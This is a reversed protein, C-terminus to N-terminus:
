APSPHPPQGAAADAAARLRELARSRGLAALVDFLGPSAARGTLAVRAPQAVDKIQLGAGALWANTATEIASATWSEVKELIGALDRLRPANAAVLFKAAAADDMLPSDRFVFDLRDAADAFTTARDRVLPIAQEVRGRDVGELGRAVLFPLVQDVYAGDSTLRPTKLHEHNIALFKKADFKGDSKNCHDWDFAAVLEDLSFVEQDGHSWGFRALYNLV